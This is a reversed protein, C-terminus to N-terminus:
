RPVLAASRESLWCLDGFAPITRPEGLQTPDIVFYLGFADYVIRRVDIRKQNNNFLSALTTRPPRQLDGAPQPNVLTVRNPGDLKLTLHSLFWSTFIGINQAPTQIATMLQPYNVNYRNRRRSSIIIHDSQLSEGEAPEERLSNISDRAQSEVLGAFSLSHLIKNTINVHGNVCFEDIEALVKSKGSNNPGVFVTVAEVQIPTAPINPRKGFKLLMQSIM